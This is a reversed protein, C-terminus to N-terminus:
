PNVALTGIFYTKLDDNWVFFAQAILSFGDRGVPEDIRFIKRRVGTKGAKRLHGAALREELELRVTELQADSADKAVDLPEGFTEAPRRVAGRRHDGVPHAARDDCGPGPASKRSRTSLLEDSLTLLVDSFTDFM